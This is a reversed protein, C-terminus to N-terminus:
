PSETIGTTVDAACYVMFEFLEDDVVNSDSHKLYSHHIQEQTGDYLRTYVKIKFSYTAPVTYDSASNMSIKVNEFDTSGDWSTSFVVPNQLTVGDAQM